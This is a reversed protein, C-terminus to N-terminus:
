PPVYGWGVFECEDANMQTLGEANSPIADTTIVLGHISRKETNETASNKLIFDHRVTNSPKTHAPFTKRHTLQDCGM